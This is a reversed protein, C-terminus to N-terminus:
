NKFLSDVKSASPWLSSEKRASAISSAQDDGTKSGDTKTFMSELSNFIEKKEKMEKKTEVIKGHRLKTEKMFFDEWERQEARVEDRFTISEEYDKELVEIEKSQGDEISELHAIQKAFSLKDKKLMDLIETYKKRVMDAETMKLSTKHIENELFQERTEQNFDDNDENEGIKINIKNLKQLM